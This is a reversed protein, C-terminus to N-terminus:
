KLEILLLRPPPLGIVVRSVFLTPLPGEATGVFAPIHGLEVVEGRVHQRLGDILAISPGLVRQVKGEDLLIRQPRCSDM